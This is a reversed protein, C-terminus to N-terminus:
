PKKEQKTVHGAHDTESHGTEGHESHKMAEHGPHVDGPPEDRTDADGHGEHGGHGSAPAPRLVADVGLAPRPAQADSPLRTGVARALAVRAQWYDRVAELYGQYADFEQQRALLLEFAGILMYNFREGERAVVAERQPILADRYAQAIERQAAVREVGLRVDNDIDLELRALAARGQELRAQARAIAAQGQDFLPLALALTPGSKRSGDAEREREAGIEVSGLLRWRRALSLADALLEVEGRAAALDLRQERALTQLADIGDEREVPAALPLAFTWQSAQAGSLGLRANLALRARLADARASTAAIRAQTAAAQELKLQLASINGAAHFRGALEASAAAASAVADRMVAVQDAGAAAYWADATDAALNMLAAAITQQAREYEGAALRKRSPLLLLDSLPLGLGLTVTSAGGDALASASFGPNGIRSAAVVDAQAIGLEAYRSAIDPNRLQALRFASDPTLPTSLLEASRADIAAAGDADSRWAFGGPLRTQLLREVNDAGERRSVSACGSLLAFS